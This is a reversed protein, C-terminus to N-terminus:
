YKQNGNRIIDLKLLNEKKLKNLHNNLCPYNDCLFEKIKKDTTGRKNIFHIILYAILSLFLLIIFIIFIYRHDFLFEKINM